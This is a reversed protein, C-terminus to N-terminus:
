QSSVRQSITVDCEWLDYCHIRYTHGSELKLGDGTIKYRLGNEYKIMATPKITVTKSGKEFIAVAEYYREEEVDKLNTYVEYRENDIEMGLTPYGVVDLGQTQELIENFYVALLGKDTLKKKFEVTIADETGSVGAMNDNPYIICPHYNEIWRRMMYEARQYCSASASALTEDGCFGYSDSEAIGWLSNVYATIAEAMAYGSKVTLTFPVKKALKKGAKEWQVLDCQSVSYCSLKKVVTVQCKKKKGQCVVSVVAKGTKKAKAYGNKDITIVEPHNSSYKAKLESACWYDRANNEMRVTVLDGVYFRKGSEVRFSDQSFYLRSVKKKAASIETPSQVCSTLVMVAAVMFNIIRKGMMRKKQDLVKLRKSMTKRMEANRVVNANVKQAYRTKPLGNIALWKPKAARLCM